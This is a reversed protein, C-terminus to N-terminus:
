AEDKVKPVHGGEEQGRGKPSVYRFYMDGKKRGEERPCTGSTRTGKRGEPQKKRSM